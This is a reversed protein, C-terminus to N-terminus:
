RQCTSGAGDLGPVAPARPATAHVLAVCHMAVPLLWTPPLRCGNTTAQSPAVQRRRRTGAGPLLSRAPMEHVLGSLHMATPDEPASVARAKWHSPVCQRVSRGTM